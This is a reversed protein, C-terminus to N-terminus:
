NNGLLMFNVVQIQENIVSIFRKMSKWSILRIKKLSNQYLM